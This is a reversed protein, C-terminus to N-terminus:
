GIGAIVYPLDIIAGTQCGKYPFCLRSSAHPCDYPVLQPELRSDGSTRLRANLNRYALRIGNAKIDAVASCFTGIRLTKGNLRTNLDIASGEFFKVCNRWSMDATTWPDAAATSSRVTPETSRAISSALADKANHSCHSIRWASCSVR